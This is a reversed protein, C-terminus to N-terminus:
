MVTTPRATGTRYLPETALTAKPGRTAARVVLHSRSPLNSRRCTCSGSVGLTDTIASHAASRGTTAVNWVAFRLDRVRDDSAPTRPGVISFIEARIATDSDARAVNTPCRPPSGITM